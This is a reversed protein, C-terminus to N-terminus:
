LLKTMIEDKVRADIVGELHNNVITNAAENARAANMTVFGIQEPDYKQMYVLKDCIYILYIEDIPHDEAMITAAPIGNIESTKDYLVINYNIREAIRLAPYDYGALLLDIDELVKISGLERAEKLISLNNLM